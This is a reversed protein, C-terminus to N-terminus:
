RIPLTLSDVAVAGFVGLGNQINTFDPADLRVSFPDGFGRAILYYNYLNQEMAFSIFTVYRIDIEATPDSARIDDVTALFLNKPFEMFLLRDPQPYIPIVSGDAGKRLSVPVEKRRTVGQEGKKKVTYDVFFRTFHGKAGSGSFLSVEICNCPNASDAFLSRARSGNVYISFPEPVSVTATAKGYEPVIVELSYQKGPSPVLERNYYAVVDASYRDSTERKLLTDRFAYRRGAEDIVVFSANRIQPDMTNQRPDLGSVNYTFYARAFQVNKSLDLVSYVVVKESYEGKPNFPVDCGICLCVCWLLIRALNRM